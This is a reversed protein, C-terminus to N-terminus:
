AREYNEKPISALSTAALLSAKQHLREIEPNRVDSFSFDSMSNTIIENYFKCFDFKKRKSNRNKPSSKPITKPLSTSHTKFYQVCSSRNKSNITPISVTELRGLNSNWNFDRPTDKIM